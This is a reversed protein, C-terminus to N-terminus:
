KFITFSSSLINSAPIIVGALKEQDNGTTIPAFFSPFRRKNTSTLANLLSIFPSVDGRGLIWSINSAKRPDSINEVSLKNLPYQFISMHFNKLSFVVYTRRKPM